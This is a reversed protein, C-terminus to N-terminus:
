ALMRNIRKAPQRPLKKGAMRAAHEYKQALAAQNRWRLERAIAAMLFAQGEPDLDSRINGQMWAATWPGQFGVPLDAMDIPNVAEARVACCGM